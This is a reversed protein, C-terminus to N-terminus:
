NSTTREKNTEAPHRARGDDRQRQDRELLAELSGLWGAAVSPEMGTGDGTENRSEGASESKSAIGEANIRRAAGEMPTAQGSVVAACLRCYSLTSPEAGQTKNLIWVKSKGTALRPLVLDRRQAPHTPIDTIIIVIITIITSIPVTTVPNLIATPLRGATLTAM